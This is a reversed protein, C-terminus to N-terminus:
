FPIEVEAFDAAHRDEAAWEAEHRDKRAMETEAGREELEADILRQMVQRRPGTLMHSMAYLARLQRIGWNRMTAAQQADTRPKATM